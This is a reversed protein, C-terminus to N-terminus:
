KRKRRKRPLPLAEGYDLSAPAAAPADVDVYSVLKRKEEKLQGKAVLEDLHVEEAPLSAPISGSSDREHSPPPRTDGREQSRFSSQREDSFRRRLPPSPRQGMSDLPPM